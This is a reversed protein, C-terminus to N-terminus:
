KEKYKTWGKHTKQIGGHLKSMCSPNLGRLACFKKLTIGEITYVRGDPGTFKLARKITAPVLSIDGSYRRWGRHQAREGSHVIGMTEPSLGMDLCFKKLNYVEQKEGKPTVFIFHKANSQIANASVTVFMCTDPGYSKNGQVKIDKDLHCGEIYSAQFWPAFNQYNHWEPVVTCNRYTPAKILATDSYCRVLMGKWIAYAKETIGGVSAPYETGGLYGVGCVSPCMLDKVRGGRISSASTNTKYGTDIFKVTVKSCSAYAIVEFDGYNNSSYVEGVQVVM